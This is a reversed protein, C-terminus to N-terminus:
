SRQLVHWIHIMSHPLTCSTYSACFSRVMYALGPLEDDPLRGVSLIEDAVKVANEHTLRALAQAVVFPARVTSGEPNDSRSKLTSRKPVEVKPVTTQVIERGNPSQMAEESKISLDQVSDHDPMAVEPAVEEPLQKAKGPAQPAAQLGRCCFM